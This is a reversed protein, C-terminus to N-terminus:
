IILDRARSDSFLVKNGSIELQEQLPQDLLEESFKPVIVLANEVDLGARDCRRSEPLFGLRGLIRPSWLSTWAQHYDLFLRQNGQGDLPGGQARGSPLEELSNTPLAFILRKFISDSEM